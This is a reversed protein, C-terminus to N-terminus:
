QEGHATQLGIVHQHRHRGAGPLQGPQALPPLTEQRSVVPDAPDAQATQPRPIHLRQAPRQPHPLQRAPGNGAQELLRAAVRQVAPRHQFLQPDLAEAPGAPHRPDRIGQGPRHQPPHPREARRGPLQHHRGRYQAVAALERRRGRQRAQIIRQRRQPFRHGRPDQDLLRVPGPGPDPEAVQQHLPGHVAIQARDPPAPQVLLRRAQHAPVRRQLVPHRRRCARVVLQGAVKLRCAPLGVPQAPHRLRRGPQRLRCRRAALGRRRIAAQQVCQLDQDRAALHGLRLDQGGPHPSGPRARPPAPQQARQIEERAPGTRGLFAQALRPLAM